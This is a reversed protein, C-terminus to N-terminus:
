RLRIDGVVREIKEPSIDGVRLLRPPDTTIDVVTSPKSSPAEGGDILVDVAQRIEEPIEDLITPDKGGAYNASTSILPVDARRMLALCFPHNPYRIGLTQGPGLFPGQIEPRARFVLTLPGPWFYEIIKQGKPPIEEVLQRLAEISGVLLNMPKQFDRGKLEYIRRVSELNFPTTGLGYVTDTPYVLLGGQRVVDAINAVIEEPPNQPDLHFFLPAM